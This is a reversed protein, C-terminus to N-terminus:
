ENGFSRCSSTMRSLTACHMGLAGNNLITLCVKGGKFKMTKEVFRSKLSIVEIIFGPKTWGGSFSDYIVIGNSLVNEKVQYLM